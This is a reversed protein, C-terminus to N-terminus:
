FPYNIGLQFQAGRKGGNTNGFGPYWRYFWKNQAAPDGPSPDKAKFAFDARIKLFSFDIRLGYGVGVALDKYLRSLKFTGNEFDPNNRLFWVNGIDAFIAGELPYTTLNAIFFRFEGNLELRMDGFRDPAITRDFSKVTSGPGLKRVSWARMSNPGGAYYQRFFPLFYNITDPQGNNMSAPFPLTKGLGAFLRYVMAKRGFTHTQVYEADIKIFRYLKANNSLAKIFGPVGALEVSGRVVNTVGKRGWGYTVNLLGSVILGDNFIYQYSANQKILSDLLKRRELINYEINPMRFYIIMKDKSVEWAMATNLSFVRFYNVRDTQALNFSLISRANERWEPKIFNARPVLRPFQIAYGLSFQQTQISDIRTALEVGYRFNLTSQNAARLFNRNVLNFNAGLGLLGGEVGLNGQNRSVDLNVSASYKPAPVLRLEFDVTDQGYRPFQNITVLRWAGLTNFRNQTKLYNSQRYLDGHRLHIFRILKRPNFLGSYSVFEYQSNYRTLTTTDPLYFLTDANYDPYIRINGIYYRRLRATDPDPKLRIQVDAVPNERRLRLAELQRLQEEIDFTPRLLALGVTDWVALLQEKSFRLFGNNRYVNTLRDLEASILPKSFPAGERLLRQEPSEMTLKQLTDISPTYPVSDLLNYWVSDLKILKGPMVFFDIHTRMQDDATDIRVSHNITDRYYGLANLQASMYVKSKSINLTDFVPPDSLKSFFFLVRKKRPVISDHLQNELEEQLEKKEDASYKGEIHVDTSYVFPRGKPYSKKSCSQFFIMAAALFIFSSILKFPKAAFDTM